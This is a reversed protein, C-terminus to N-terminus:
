VRSTRVMGGRWGPRRNFQGALNVSPVSQLNCRSAPPALSGGTSIDAACARAPGHCSTVIVSFSAPFALHAPSAWDYSEWCCGARDLLSASAMDGAGCRRQGCGHRWRASAPAPRAPACPKAATAAFRMCGPPPLCGPWGDSVTWPRFRSHSRAASARVSASAVGPPSAM